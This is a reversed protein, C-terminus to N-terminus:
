TGLTRSSHGATRVTPSRNTTAGSEREATVQSVDQAQKVTEGNSGLELSLLALSQTMRGQDDM